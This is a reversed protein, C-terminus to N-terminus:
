YRHGEAINGIETELAGGRKKRREMKRIRGAQPRGFAYAVMSASIM